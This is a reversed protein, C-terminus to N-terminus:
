STVGTFTFPAWFAPHPSRSREQLQADRLFTACLPERGALTHARVYMAVMMRAASDDHASWLSAVVRSTGRAIFAHVLGTLEDGAEVSLGATDCGSLVVENPARPLDAIDRVGLWRDAMRLGSSWPAEPLFQGHCALHATDCAALGDSVRAATADAGSVATCGLAAAVALAEDLVKPACEDAVGVVLTRAAAITRREAADSRREAARRQLVPLLSASPLVSLTHRDIVAGQETGLAAFPVTHIRGHPVLMVRPPLEAAAAVPQWLAAGLRGLVAQVAAVAPARGSRADRFAKRVHFELQGLCEEIDADSVRLRVARVGTPRVVFALWEGDARTYAVLAEDKALAAKIRPVSPIELMAAHGACRAVVEVELQAIRQELSAIRSRLSHVADATPQVLQRYLGELEGRAQELRLAHAAAANGVPAGQASERTTVAAAGAAGAAGAVDAAHHAGAVLREILSRGKGREAAEFAREAADAGGEDLRALVLQEHADVARGLYARRLLEAGLTARVRESANVAREAARAAAAHEHQARAAKACEVLADCELPAAGLGEALAAASQAAAAAQQARGARLAVRSAVLLRGVAESPPPAPQLAAAAALAEDAQAIHGLEAHLLARLGQARCEGATDKLERARRVADDAAHLADASRGLTALARALALAARLGEFALGRADVQPLTEGLTSAAAPALGLALLVDAEELRLRAQHGPATVTDRASAFLELAEHLAGARGALDAMNGEIVGIAFGSGSQRAWAMARTFATRAEAFRDLTLLAEGRTNEIHAALSADAGLHELARDLHVISEAIEGRSKRVNGLNIDARAALDPRQAAMFEAHATAGATLSDGSRGLKLLPHMLSLLARAAEVREGAALSQARNAEALAVSEDLRGAYALALTTARRVRALARAMGPQTRMADLSALAMLAHGHEAARQPDRAASREMADGVSELWAAADGSALAAAVQEDVPRAMTSSLLADDPTASPVSSSRASDRPANSDGRSPPATM